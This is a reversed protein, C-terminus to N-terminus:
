SVNLKYEVSKIRLAQPTPSVTQPVKKEEKKRLSEQRKLKYIENFNWKEEKKKKNSFTNFKVM